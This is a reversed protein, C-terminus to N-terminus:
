QGASMPGVSGGKVSGARQSVIGMGAVGGREPCEKKIHGSQGCRYCNGSSGKKRGSLQIVAAALGSSSM